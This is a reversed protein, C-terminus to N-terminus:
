WLEEALVVALLLLYCLKVLLVQFKFVVVDANNTIRIM